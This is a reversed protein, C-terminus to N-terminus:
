SKSRPDNSLDRREVHREQINEWYARKEKRERLWDRFARWGAKVAEKALETGIEKLVPKM